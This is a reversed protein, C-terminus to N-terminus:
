LTATEVVVATLRAHQVHVDHTLREWPLHQGDPLMISLTAVIASWCGHRRWRDIRRSVTRPNPYVGDSPLDCLAVNHRLCYVICELLRRHTVTPSRMDMDAPLQAEVADWIDDPLPLVRM